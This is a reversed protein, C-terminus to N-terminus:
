EAGGEALRPRTSPARPNARRRRSRPSGPVCVGGHARRESQWLGLPSALVFVRLQVKRLLDHLQRVREAPASPMAIVVEDLQVAWGELLCEPMGVVPVGHISQHWKQCDDDFFAVVDRGLSPKHDLERALQIGAAGAGIIGVRARVHGDEDTEGPCRERWHRLLLRFGGLFLVAALADIMIVNRPPWPNGTLTEIGLLLVGATGLATILQRLERLSFYSLLGCCQRCWILCGLQLTVVAPMQKSLEPLEAPHLQFDFALEYAVVFSLSLLAAYVVVIGVWRPCLTQLIIWTDTWVTAREAYDRNLQVKRPVCHQLYFEEVNEAHRLLSEENRFYLSALDTIGPQYRLISRQEPTYHELFRPVEPRPGVLSMEGRLVNWLQPLEDLKAKRLLGGIGTVRRDGDRTVKPGAQEAHPVMTRFKWISFPRGHQGVREQRFFVPGRSTLKILAAILLFVPSLLLLGLTAFFIDYCRKM